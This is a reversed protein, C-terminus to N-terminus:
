PTAEEFVLGGIGSAPVYCGRRCSKGDHIMIPESFDIGVGSPGHSFVTGSFKIGCYSGSVRRGKFPGNNSNDNYTGTM